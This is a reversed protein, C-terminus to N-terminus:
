VWWLNRSLGPVREKRLGLWGAWKHSGGGARAAGEGDEDQQRREGRDVEIVPCVAAGKVGVRVDPGGDEAAGSGRGRLVADSDEFGGGEEGDVRRERHAVCEGEDVEGSQEDCAEGEARQERAGCGPAGGAEGRLPEGSRGEEKEEFVTKLPEDPVLAGFGEGDGCEEREREPEAGIAQRPGGSVEESGRAKDGEADELAEDSSIDATTKWRLM